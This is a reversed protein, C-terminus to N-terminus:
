PTIGEPTPLLAEIHALHRDRETAAILAADDTSIELAALDTALEAEWAPRWLDEVTATAGKAALAGLSSRVAAERRSFHRECLAKVAPNGALAGSGLNQTGSDTPSAQGGILVNLPTVLDDGNPVAPLNARARAENRTLWPAGVSTQLVSAQEEFSGRLKAAVNAEVYTDPDAGLLRALPQIAGELASLYPGLSDRYLLQRFAQVNAFTGERAGVLEPPVHYASCVEIDALRRGELDATDTAKPPDLQTYTMGDELLMVGGASSGDKGAFRRLGASFRDRALDEWERDRSVVGTIRSQRDWLQRRYRVAENQESLVQALATLPSGGRPGRPAYGFDLLASGPDLDRWTHAGTGDAVVVQVATVRGAGDDVLQFKGPPVRVLSPTVPDVMVLWRDALLGDLMVRWWFRFPSSPWAQGTEPAGLVTALPTGTIRARDVDSVRQYAHLPISAINRAIFDAVKRVSPQTRWMADVIPLGSAYDLLPVGPDKLQIGASELVGVYDGQPIGPVAHKSPDTVAWGDGVAFMSSM